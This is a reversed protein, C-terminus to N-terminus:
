TSPAMDSEGKATSVNPNLTLTAFTSMKQMEANMAAM